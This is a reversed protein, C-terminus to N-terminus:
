GRFGSDADNIQGYAGAPSSRGQRTPLDTPQGRRPASAALEEPGGAPPPTGPQGPSTPDM